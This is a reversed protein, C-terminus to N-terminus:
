QFCYFVVSRHIDYREILLFHSAYIIIDNLDEILDYLHYSSYFKKGKSAFIKKEVISLLLFHDFLIADIYQDNLQDLLMEYLQM